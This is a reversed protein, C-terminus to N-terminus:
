VPTIQANAPLHPLATYEFAVLQSQTPSFDDNKIDIDVVHTSIAVTFLARPEEDYDHKLALAPSFLRALDVSFQHDHSISASIWGCLPESRRRPLKSHISLEPM